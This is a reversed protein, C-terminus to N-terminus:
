RLKFALETGPRQYILREGHDGNDTMACAGDMLIMAVGVVRMIVVLALEPVFFSAAILGAGVTLIALMAHADAHSAPELIAAVNDRAYVVEHRGSGCTIGDESIVTVHCRHRVRPQAVTVLSVTALYPYDNQTPWMSVAPRGLVMVTGGSEQACASGILLAVTAVFLVIPLRGM